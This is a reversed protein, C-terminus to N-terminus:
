KEASPPTHSEFNTPLRTNTYPTATQKRPKHRKTKLHWVDEVQFFESGTSNYVDVHSYSGSFLPEKCWMMRTKKLNFHFLVSELTGHQEQLSPGTNSDLNSRRKSLVQLQLAPASDLSCPQNWTALLSAKKQHFVFCISAFLTVLSCIKSKGEM